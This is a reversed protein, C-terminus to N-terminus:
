KKGGQAPEPCTLVMSESHSMYYCDRGDVNVKVPENPFLCHIVAVIVTFIIVIGLVEKM